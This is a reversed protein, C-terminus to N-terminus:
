GINADNEGSNEAEALTSKFKSIKEQLESLESPIEAAASELPNPPRPVNQMMEQSKYSLFSSIIMNVDALIADVDSLDLRLQDIERHSDVSLTTDGMHITNNVCDGLIAFAKEALRQVEEELDDLKVSYQINVRQSM